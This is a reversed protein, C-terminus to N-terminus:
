WLNKPKLVLTAQARHDPSVFHDMSVSDVCKMPLDEKAQKLTQPQQARDKKMQKRRSVSFATVQEFGCFEMLYEFDTRSLVHAKPLGSDSAVAFEIYKKSANGVAINVPHQLNGEFLDGTNLNLKFSSAQTVNHTYHDSNQLAFSIKRGDDLGVSLCKANKTHQAIVNQKEQRLTFDMLHKAAINKIQSVLTGIHNKEAYFGDTISSTVIKQIPFPTTQTALDSIAHAVSLFEEFLIGEASVYGLLASDAYVALHDDLINDDACGVFVDDIASCRADESAVVQFGFGALAETCEPLNHRSIQIDAQVVKHDIGVNALHTSVCNVLDGYDLNGLCLLNGDDKSTTISVLHAVETLKM